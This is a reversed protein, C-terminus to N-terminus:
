QKIEKKERISNAWEKGYFKFIEEAAVQHALASPHADFTSAWLGKLPEDHRSYAERLDLCPLNREKCVDLVQDHLFGLPYDKMNRAFSPFLVIGHKIKQKDLIDMLENLLKRAVKSDKSTPDKFKSILYKTYDMQKGQRIRLQSRAQGILFYLASNRTLFVHLKRNSILPPAKYVKPDIRSNMDNVYWQYVVFDPKLASVFNSVHRIYQPLNLGSVGLNLIELDLDPYKEQFLKLTQEPFRKDYPWVGQGEALSDGVVAVRYDHTKNISFNEGRIGLANKERYCKKSSKLYFYDIGHSSSQVDRYYWRCFYESALILAVLSIILVFFTVSLYALRSKFTKIEGKAYAVALKLM